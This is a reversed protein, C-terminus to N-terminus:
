QTNRGDTEEIHVLTKGMEFDGGLENSTFRFALLRANKSFRMIQENVPAPVGPTLETIVLPASEVQETRANARSLVSLSIDGSQLFDPEVISVRYAKDKAGQELTIPSMEHTDYGAKIPQSAANVKKDLGTEHQWLTYGTSTVDVDTMFPFAYVKAYLGASRGGNPLPTDYWIQLRTNYIVAHNCETASGTPFCWWIEGWRPVKMAFVKQRQAMNINKFFFDINLNNPLERVVGNFMLFRDVGVWYYISDYEVICQSSLISSEGAATAFAFTPIGGAAVTAAADFTATIVADLSWLIASLSNGRLQLGKVVKQTANFTSNATPATPDNIKSIDIRGGKGYAMIYPPVALVGGAVPDMGSPVLPTAADAKGYYIPTEVINAIDTLNRGAHAILVTTGDVQNHFAAFQWLNNDNAVFGAPTRPNLAALAGDSGVQAQTLESRSGMYVYTLAQATFSDMGRVIEDLRQTVSQFGAIKRPRARATFRTWLGNQYNPGEFQTCDQKIGPQSELPFPTTTGMSLQELRTDLVSHRGANDGAM